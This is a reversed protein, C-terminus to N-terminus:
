ATHVAAPKRTRRQGSFVGTLYLLSSRSLGQNQTPRYHAWRTAGHTYLFRNGAGERSEETCRFNGPALTSPNMTVTYFDRELSSKVPLSIKM